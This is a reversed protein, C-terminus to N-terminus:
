DDQQDAAVFASPPTSSRQDSTHPEVKRDHLAELRADKRRRIHKIVQRGILLAGAAGLVVYVRNRYRSWLFPAALIVVRGAIENKLTM